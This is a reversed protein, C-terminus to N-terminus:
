PGIAFKIVRGRAERQRPRVHSKRARFAVDVIVVVDRNCRAGGAVLCSIVGRDRRHIVDRGLERQLTLQAVVCHQPRMAREIVRTERQRTLMRLNKARVTVNIVIERRQRRGADTAVLGVVLVRGIGSVRRLRLEERRRALTTVAGRVPQVSREIVRLIRRKRDTVAIGVPHTRRAVRVRIVIRNELARVAVGLALGIPVMLTNTSVDIVAHVAVLAM